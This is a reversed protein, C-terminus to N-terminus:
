KVEEFEIVQQATSYQMHTPLPSTMRKAIEAVGRMIAYAILIRLAIEILSANALGASIYNSALGLALALPISATVMRQTKLAYGTLAATVIYTLYLYIETQM